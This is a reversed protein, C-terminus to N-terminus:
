IETVSTTNTFPLTDVSDNPTNVPEPPTIDGVVKLSSEYTRDKEKMEYGNSM